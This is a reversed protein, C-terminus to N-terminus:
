EPEIVIANDIPQEMGLEAVQAKMLEAIEPNAAYLAKLKEKAQEISLRDTVDEVQQRTKTQFKDSIYSAQEILSEKLLKAKAVGDRTVPEGDAGLNVITELAESALVEARYREAKSFAEKFDPHMEFWDTVEQPTPLIDHEGCNDKNLMVPLSVGDYTMQVIVDMISYRTCPVGNIAFCKTAADQRARAKAEEFRERAKKYTSMRTYNMFHDPKKIDLPQKLPYREKPKQKYQEVRPRGGKNQPNEKKVYKPKPVKLEPVDERPGDPNSSQYYPETRKKKVM